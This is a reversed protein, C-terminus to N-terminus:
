RCILAVDTYTIAFGANQNVDSFFTCNDTPPNLGSLNVERQTSGHAALSIPTPDADSAKAGTSDQMWDPPNDSFTVASATNNTYTIWLVLHGVGQVQVMNLVASVEGTCGSACTLTRNPSYTFPYNNQTLASV